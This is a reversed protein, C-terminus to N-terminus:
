MGQPVAMYFLTVLLAIMGSIVLGTLFKHMTAVEQRKLHSALM